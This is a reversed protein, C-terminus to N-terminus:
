FKTVIGNSLFSGSKGLIYNLSLDVRDSQNPKEPMVKINTHYWVLFSFLLDGAQTQLLKEMATAQDNVNSKGFTEWEQELQATFSLPTKKECANPVAILEM